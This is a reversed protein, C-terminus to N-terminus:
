IGVSFTLVREQRKNNHKISVSAAVLQSLTEILPDLHIVVFFCQRYISGFTTRAHPHASSLGKVGKQNVKQAATAVDCIQINERM